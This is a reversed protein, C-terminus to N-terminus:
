RLLTVTGTKRYYKANLEDIYEVVWVYTGLSAPEGNHKGNWAVGPDTTYFIFDGWRNYISLKYQGIQCRYKPRFLDNMGDGNPSFATPYFLQCDCNQYWINVSDTARNCVNEAVIAYIGPQSVLFSAVSSSDQWKYDMGAGRPMLRLTEGACLVSDMGLSVHLSDQFDVRITDMEVCRGIQVRVYYYGSSDVHYTAQDSGDQWLYNGTGFDATLVLFNGYCLTTDNGLNIPRLRSYRVGITDLVDCIGNITVFVSFDGNRAVNIRPANSGTNWQYRTAEPRTADLVVSEGPCLLTDPGLNFPYPTGTFTITVQDTFDGCGAVHATVSYTQTVGTTLITPTTEGTSWTYTANQATADLTMLEGTCLTRDPGLDFDPIPSYFINVSDIETCGNIAVHYTAMETVTFTNVNGTSVTDELFYWTYTAGPIPPATIVTNGNECLTLDPGLNVGQRPVITITQTTIDEVGNRYAKLTITYTGPTTYIHFADEILDSSDEDVLPPSVFYWKVSDIVTIDDTIVFKVSDNLCTTSYTFNTLLPRIKAVASVSATLLFTLILAQLRALNKKPVM